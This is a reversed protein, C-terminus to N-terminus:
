LGWYNPYYKISTWVWDTDVISPTYYKLTHLTNIGGHLEIWPTRSTTVMEGLAAVRISGDDSKRIVSRYGPRSDIEYSHPSVYWPTSGLLFSPYQMFTELTPAIGLGFIVSNAPVSSRFKVDLMLGAPATGINEIVPSIRDVTAVDIVVPAPATFYPSMTDITVQVEPDQAFPVVECKSVYGETQLKVTGAADLLEVKTKGDIGQTLLGYIDQRLEAPRVNSGYDPNLGIRIVLQKNQPRRGQYNSGVGPRVESFVNIDPPGFGDAAKFLFKDSIPTESLRLTVPTLGFLRIQTIYGFSPMM